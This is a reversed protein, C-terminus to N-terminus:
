RFAILVKSALYTKSKGNVQVQEESTSIHTVEDRVFSINEKHQIFNWIYKYFAESRIMKYSFSGLSIKKNKGLAGFYIQSWEKSLLLDWEGTGKEWFCWTRDNGKNQEQDLILISKHDFFPDKAMRYALMLGSAGAGLILYDTQKM